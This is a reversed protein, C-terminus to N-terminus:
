ERKDMGKGGTETEERGEDEDMGHVVAAWDPASTKIGM